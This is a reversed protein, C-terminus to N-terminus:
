EALQALNILAMTMTTLVFSLMVWRSQTIPQNLWSKIM